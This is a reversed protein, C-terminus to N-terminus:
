YEDLEFITQNCKKITIHYADDMTKTTQTDINYRYISDSNGGTSLHIEAGDDATGVFNFSYKYYSSFKCLVNGYKKVAQEKTLM